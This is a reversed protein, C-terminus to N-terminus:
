PSRNRRRARSSCRRGSPSHPGRTRRPAAGAGGGGGRVARAGARAESREVESAVPDLLIRRGTEPEGLEAALAAVGEAAEIGRGDEAAPGTDLGVRRLGGGKEVLGTLAAVAFATIVEADSVFLPRSDGAVAAAGRLQVAFRARESELPGARLLSLSRTFVNWNEPLVEIPM